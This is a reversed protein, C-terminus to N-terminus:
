KSADMAKVSFLAVEESFHGVNDEVRIKLTYDGTKDCLVVNHYELEPRGNLSYWVMKVGAAQDTAALFLSTYQPYVNVIKGDNNVISDVPAVSFIQKIEPNTNDVIVLVVNGNEINNVNDVGWYRVMYKGEKSISVPHDYKEVNGTGTQFEIRQLGAGKDASFFELTTASTVWIATQQRYSPGIVKFGTKPPTLDMIYPKNFKQSMNGLKDTASYEVLFPGASLNLSFPNTYDEIKKNANLTNIAYQIKQVGIKKDTATLEIHSRPSVFSNKDLVFNDGSISIQPVPPTKDLYFPYNVQNEVNKVNDIGYFSLVHDGDTLNYLSFIQGTYPLFNTQNEFKYFMSKVGSFKDSSRLRITTSVSLVDDNFNTQKEYVSQPPSKDVVCRATKLSSAYGVKDVAYSNIKYEKETDFEFPKEYPVFTGKDVSTLISDVGSLADKAFVSYKLGSGFFLDSKTVFVPAGYFSDTVVPPVGDAYFRLLTERQNVQAIWKLFQRGPIEIKIGQNQKKDAGNVAVESYQDLFFTQADKGPSNALKVWFPLDMPWFIKNTSSDVYVKLASPLANIPTAVQAQSHNILIICISVFFWPFFNRMSISRFFSSSLFLAMEFAKLRVV